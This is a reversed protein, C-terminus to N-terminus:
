LSDNVACFKEILKGEDDEVLDVLSIDVCVEDKEGDLSDDSLIGFDSYNKHTGCYIVFKEFVVKGWIM